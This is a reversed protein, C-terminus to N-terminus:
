PLKWTILLSQNININFSAKTFITKITFKSIADSFRKVTPNRNVDDVNITYTNGYPGETFFNSVEFYHTGTVSAEFTVTNKEGNSPTFPNNGVITVDRGNFDKGVIRITDTVGTATESLIGEDYSNDLFLTYQQGATLNIRFVDQDGNLEIEGSTAIGLNLLTASDNSHNSHDDSVRNEDVKITYTNGDPVTKDINTVEFYHAGTAGAEFTTTNEERAWANTKDVILGNIDKINVVLAEEYLTKHPIDVDDLNNLSVTYKQGKTVNIRFFDEDGNLELEGSTAVGLNLLTSSNRQQQLM